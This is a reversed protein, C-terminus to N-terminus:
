KRKVALYEKGHGVEKNIPVGKKCLPCDKEEFADARFVALSHFPAKMMKENVEDPNRNVLVFVAMVQGGAERVREVVKLVSSGTTTLDEVVLVKKGRVLKDYGRMLM